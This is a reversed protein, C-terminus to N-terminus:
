TLGGPSVQYHIDELESLRSHHGVGLGKRWVVLKDHEYDEGFTSGVDPPRFHGQYDEVTGGSDKIWATSPPTTAIDINTVRVKQIVVFVNPAIRQVVLVLDGIIDHANRAGDNVPTLDSAQSVLLGDNESAMYLDDDHALTLTDPPIADGYEYGGGVLSWWGNLWGRREYVSPLSDVYDIVFGSVWESGGKYDYPNNRVWQKYKNDDRYRSDIPIFYTDALALNRADVRNRLAVAVDDTPSNFRYAIFADAQRETSSLHSWMWAQVRGSEGRFKGTPIYAALESDHFAVGPLYTKSPIIAPAQPAAPAQKEEEQLVQGMDAYATENKDIEFIVKNFETPIAWDQPSEWRVDRLLRTRLLSLDIGHSTGVDIEYTRDNMRITYRPEQIRWFSRFWTVFDPKSQGTVDVMPHSGTQFQRTVIFDAAVSDANTRTGQVVPMLLDAESQTIAYIPVMRPYAAVDAGSPIEVNMKTLIRKGASMLAVEVGYSGGFYNYLDLWVWGVHTEYTHSATTADVWAKYAKYMDTTQVSADLNGGKFGDIMDWRARFTDRFHTAEPTAGTMIADEVVFIVVPQLGGRKFFPVTRAYHVPHRTGKMTHLYKALNVGEFIIDNLLAAFDVWVEDFATIEFEDPFVDPRGSLFHSKRKVRDSISLNDFGLFSIWQGDKHAWWRVNQDILNVVDTPYEYEWCCATMQM